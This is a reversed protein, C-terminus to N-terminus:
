PREREAALRDLQEEYADLFAQGFLDEFDDQAESSLQSFLEEFTDWLRAKRLSPLLASLASRQTLDAELRVPDFRLLVSDLASRMGAMVALQHARLDNFADRMAPQAPMFGPLAPSLLYQMAVEASPSFKLPNNEKAVIMTMEARMERKLAARAVLLEVAGRTSERLLSGILRMLDPTLAELRLGPTALGELLAALLAGEGAAATPSATATPAPHPGAAPAGAPAAALAPAAPSRDLSSPWPTALPDPVPAAQVREQRDGPGRALFGPVTTPMPDKVEDWSFVAGPPLAPAAPNAAPSAAPTPVPKAGEARVRPMAANLESGHDALSPGSRAPAAGGPQLLPDISSPAPALLHAFPDAAGAGTGVSAGAADAGGLGFLADLSSESGGGLLGGLGGSGAAAAPFSPAASPSAAGAKSPSLDAFPDWDEPIMAAGAGGHAAPAAVPPRSAPLPSIPPSAAATSAAVGPAALGGSIDGFLDAFPDSSAAAKHEEGVSLLYGGIQLQDGAQLLQEAQPALAQGNYLVPNSGNDAVVYRGARFSIRAHQRSISREPDPLVLQNGEARGISGGLEDFSASLGQMPEGNFSLVTLRIM